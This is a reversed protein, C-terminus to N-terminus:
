VINEQFFDELQNISYKTKKSKILLEKIWDKCPTINTEICYQIVFQTLGKRVDRSRHNKDYKYSNFCLINYNNNTYFSQIKEIPFDKIWLSDDDFNFGIDFNEFHTNPYGYYNSMYKCMHHYGIRKPQKKKVFYIDKYNLGDPLNYPIEQFHILNANEDNFTNKIDNKIEETYIDDFHYIYIPYKMKNNFHKFFSELCLKLCKTRSSILHVCIKLDEM